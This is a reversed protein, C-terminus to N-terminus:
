RGVDGAAVSSASPAALRLDLSSAPTRVSPSRSPRRVIPGITSRRLTLAVMATGIALALAIQWPRPVAAACAWMALPLAWAPGLRPRLLALPVILLAFYHLQVIPTALLSVGIALALAPVERGRRGLALCAVACSGALAFALVYAASRSSGAHLALAILSYGRREEFATLAHLLQSYRHLEGFGLVAWALANLALGCVAAYALAAYRRTALLWLALPWLFLKVSVLLAILLGILLARERYRWVAAIGLGLLLTVNAVSWGSFVAPCLMVLGYLRWDRVELLRLTLLAAAIQLGAFIVDASGHPILALPALLLAALAPYVFAIAHAITPSGPDAYPSLGHLVHQGAPWFAYHFDGAFHVQGARSRLLTFLTLAVPILAWAAISALRRVNVARGALPAPSTQVPEM